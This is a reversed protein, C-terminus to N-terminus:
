IWNEVRLGEVRKFERQNNTVLVVALAIAHAAIQLDLPGIPLGKRELTARISGYAMAADLDFPAVELPLLFGELAALNRPSRSKKVGYALEAVTISSVGVDGPDLVSLRKRVSAPRDNILYICINTDLLYRM